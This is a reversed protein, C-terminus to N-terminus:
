GRSLAGGFARVMAPGRFPFNRPLKRRARRWAWLGPLLARPMARGHRHQGGRACDMPRISAGCQRDAPSGRRAGVSEKLGQMVDLRLLPQVTERYERVGRTAVFATRARFQNENAM